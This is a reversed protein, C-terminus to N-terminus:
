AAVTLVQQESGPRPQASLGAAARQGIWLATDSSPM